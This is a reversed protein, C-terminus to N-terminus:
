NRIQVPTTGAAWPTPPTGSFAPESRVFRTWAADAGTIVPIQGVFPAPVGFGTLRDERRILARSKDLAYEPLGRRRHKLVGQHHKLWGNDCEYKVKYPLFHLQAEPQLVWQSIYERYSNDPSEKFERSQRHERSNLKAVHAREDGSLSAEWRRLTAASRTFRLTLSEQVNGSITLTDFPWRDAMSDPKEVFPPTVKPALAYTGALDPCGGRLLGTLLGTQLSPWDSPYLEARAAGCAAVLLLTLLYRPYHAPM